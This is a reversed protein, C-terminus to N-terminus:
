LKCTVSKSPLVPKESKSSLGNIQSTLSKETRAAQAQELALKEATLASREAAEAEHKAVAEQLVAGGTLKFIVDLKKIDLSKLADAQDPFDAPVFTKKGDRFDRLFRDFGFEGSWRTVLTLNDVLIKLESDGCTTAAWNFVQAVSFNLQTLRQPAKACNLTLTAGYPQLSADVNARVPFSAVGVNFTAQNFKAADADIQVLRADIFKSRAAARTEDLKAQLEAKKTAADRARKEAAVRNIFTLFETDWPLIWNFSSAKAYGTASQSLFPKATKDLYPWLVGDAGMVKDYFAADDPASQTAALVQSEWEAQMTCAANLYAYAATTVLEGRLLAWVPENAPQDRTGLSDQLRKMANFADRLNSDKVTPDRGLVSFDSALTAAKGPASVAESVAKALAQNFVGYLKGAGMLNKETQVTASSVAARSSQASLLLPASSQVTDLKSTVSGIISTNTAAKRISRLVDVSAIWNPRVLRKDEPFEQLLREEIRVFPSSQSNFTTLLDVWDTETKLLDRGNPFQLMFNKWAVERQINYNEWFAMEKPQYIERLAGVANVKAMFDAIKQYGVLTYAGSVKIVSPQGTPNWYDSLNVDSVGPQHIVWDFLWSLSRDRQSVNSLGTKLQYLRRQLNETTDWATYYLYLDDIERADFESLEPVLVQSASSTPEEIARLSYMSENQSAALTLSVRAIMYDIAMGHFLGSDKMTSDLATFFRKDIIEIQYRHYLQVFNSKLENELADSLNSFPLLFNWSNNAEQNLWDIQPKTSLIRQAYKEATDGQSIKALKFQGLAELQTSENLYGCVLWVATLSVAAYYATWALRTRKKRLNEYTSLPQFARDYSLVQEFVGPGFALDTGNTRATTSARGAQSSWGSLFLGRYLPPEHYASTGFLAMLATELPAQLNRIDRAALLGSQGAQGGQTTARLALWPMYRALEDISRRVYGTALASRYPLLAGAPQTLLEAPLHSLLHEVGDLEDAHTLMVYVPLRRQALEMLDNIRQRALQLGAHTHGTLQTKLQDVSLCVIVGACQAPSVDATMSNLLKKWGADCLSADQDPDIHQGAIEIAIGTSLFSLQCSQTPTLADAALSRDLYSGTAAQQLLTSKGSGSLGLVFHVQHDGLPSKDLGQTASLFTRVQAVWEEDPAQAQEQQPRTRLRRQARYRVYYRRALSVTFWLVVPIIPWLWMSGAPWALLIQFAWGVALLVTLLLILLLFNLIKKLM